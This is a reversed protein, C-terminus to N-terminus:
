HSFGSHFVENETCHAKPYPGIYWSVSSKFNDNVIYKSQSAERKRKCWIILVDVDRKATQPAKISRTTAETYIKGNSHKSFGKKLDSAIWNTYGKYIVSYKM